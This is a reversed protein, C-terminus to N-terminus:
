RRIDTNLSPPSQTEASQVTNGSENHNLICCILINNVAITAVKEHQCLKGISKLYITFDLLRGVTLDTENTYSWLEINFDHCLPCRNDFSIMSGVGIELQLINFFALCQDLRNFHIQVVENYKQNMMAFLRDLQEMERKYESILAFVDGVM